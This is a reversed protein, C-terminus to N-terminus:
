PLRLQGSGPAPQLPEPRTSGLVRQQDAYFQQLQLERAQDYARQRVRSREPDHRFRQLDVMQETELRQQEMRQELQLRDLRQRDAQSIGARNRAVGQQLDLSLRDQLQQQHLRQRAAAGATPDFARASQAAFSCGLVLVAAFVHSSLAAKM